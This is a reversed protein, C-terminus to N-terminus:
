TMPTYTYGPSVSNVRVGRSAWEWALSKTLQVVAAKASNYHAQHLGRNAIRASMSAINVISGRSRQLMAGSEAQCSLFVGTLDIDIVKQWQAIPMDEAPRM